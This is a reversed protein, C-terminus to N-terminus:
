CSGTVASAKCCVRLWTLNPLFTQESNQSRSSAICLPFQGLLAWTVEECSLEHINSLTHLTRAFDGFSPFVIGYLHLTRINLICTFLSPLFLRHIPLTPHEKVGRPLPNADLNTLRAGLVAPFSVVCSDSVHLYGRLQVQRVYAGLEPSTDLLQAFQYLATKNRIIVCHFLVKQAPSRWARCVLACTSLTALAAQVLYYNEEYVASIVRECVEVPVRPLKEQVQPSLADAM